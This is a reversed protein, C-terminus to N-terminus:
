HLGNLKHVSKVSEVFNLNCCMKGWVTILNLMCGPFASYAFGFSLRESKFERLASLSNLSVVKLVPIKEM